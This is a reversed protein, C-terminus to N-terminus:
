NHLEADDLFLFSWDIFKGTYCFTGGSPPIKRISYTAKVQVKGRPTSRLIREQRRVDDYHAKNGDLIRINGYTEDEYLDISVVCAKAKYKSLLSDFDMNKGEQTLIYVLKTAFIQNDYFFVGKRPHISYDM